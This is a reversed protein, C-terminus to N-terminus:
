RRPQWVVKVKISGEKARFRFSGRPIDPWNVVINPGIERIEGDPFKIWGNGDEHVYFNCNNPIPKTPRSWDESTAVLEDWGLTGVHGRKTQQPRTWWETIHQNSTYLWYGGFVLLILLTAWAIAKGVRLWVFPRTSPPNPDSNKTKRGRVLVSLLFILGLLTPLIIYKFYWSIKEIGTPKFSFDPLEFGDIGSLLLVVISLPVVLTVAYALKKWNM